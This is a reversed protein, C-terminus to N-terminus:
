RSLRREMSERYLGLMREGWIEIDYHELVRVRARRAFERRAEDDSLLGRVAHVFGDESGNVVPIGADGILERVGGVDSAVCALASAMAELLVLPLGERVSTLVFLDFLGYMEEPNPHHGPMAIYSKVGLQEAMSELREREGGEGLIVFRVPPLDGRRERVLRAAMRLFLSFNKVKKLGGVAGIIICTAPRAGPFMERLARERRQQRENEELPRFRATDVANPVVVVRDRPHGMAVAEDAAERNVAVVTEIRGAVIRALIRRWGGFELGASHRTVVLPIDTFLAGLSSVVEAHFLHAHILHPQVKRVIRRLSRLARPRALDRLSGLPLRFLSVGEELLTTELGGENPSLSCVAPTISVRKMYRCLDVLHHEAGGRRLSSIFFLIRDLEM